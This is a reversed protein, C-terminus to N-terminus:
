KWWVTARNVLNGSFVGSEHVREIVKSLGSLKVNARQLVEQLSAQELYSRSKRQEIASEVRRLVVELDIANNDLAQLRGPLEGLVFRKSIHLSLSRRPPQPSLSSVRLSRFLTQWEPSVSNM